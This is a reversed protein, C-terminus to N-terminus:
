FFSANARFRKYVGQTYEKSASTIVRCSNYKKELINAVESTLFFRWDNKDMYIDEQLLRVVFFNHAVAMEEKALDNEMVEWGSNWNSLPRFHQPGDVEILINEIKFDFSFKGSWGFKVQTDVNYNNKLFTYVKVETKNNCMSCGHKKMHIARQVYKRNCGGCTLKYKKISTMWVNRPKKENEDCWEKV